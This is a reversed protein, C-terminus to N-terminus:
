FPHHDEQNEYFAKAEEILRDMEQLAKKHVQLVAKETVRNCPTKAIGRKAFDQFIVTMKSGDPKYYFINASAALGGSIKSTTLELTRIGEPTDGLQAKSEAMWGDYGKRTKIEYTM